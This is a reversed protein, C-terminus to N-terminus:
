SQIFAFLLLSGRGVGSDSQYSYLVEMWYGDDRCHLSAALHFHPFNDTLSTDHGLMAYTRIYSSLLALEFHSM